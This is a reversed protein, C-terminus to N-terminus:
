NAKLPAPAALAGEGGVGEYFTNVTGTSGALGAFASALAQTQVKNGVALLVYSGSDVVLSEEPSVCIWKGSNFGKAILDKVQAASAADKCKVVTFQQAFTAIAAMSSYAEEVYQSFQDTTLGLMNEATDATVPDDITMPLKDTGTLTADATDKVQTLVEQASGTLNSSGSTGNSSSCGFVMTAVLIIAVFIALKKM